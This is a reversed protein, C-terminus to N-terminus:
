NKLQIQKKTLYTNQSIDSNTIVVAYQILYRQWKCFINHIHITSKKRFTGLIQLAKKGFM